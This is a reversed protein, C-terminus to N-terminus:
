ALPKWKLKWFFPRNQSLAKDRIREAGREATERAFFWLPAVNIKGSKRANAFFAKAAAGDTPEGDILYRGDAGFALTRKKVRGITAIVYTDEM